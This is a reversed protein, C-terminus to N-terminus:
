LNRLECSIADGFMATRTRLIRCVLLDDDGRRLCGKLRNNLWVHDKSPHRDTEVQVPYQSELPYRVKIERMDDLADIAERLRERRDDDAVDFGISYVNVPM